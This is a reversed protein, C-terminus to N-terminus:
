PESPESSAADKDAEALIDDFRKRLVEIQRKVEAEYAYEKLEEPVGELARAIAEQDLIKNWDIDDNEKTEQEDLEDDMVTYDFKFNVFLEGDEKRQGETKCILVKDQPYNEIKYQIMPAIIDAM